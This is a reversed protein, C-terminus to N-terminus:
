STKKKTARVDTKEVIYELITKLGVATTRDKTDIVTSIEALLESIQIICQDDQLAPHLTYYKEVKKVVHGKELKDLRYQIQQYPTGVTRSLRYATLPEESTRLAELIVYDQPTLTM